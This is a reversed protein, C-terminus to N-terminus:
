GCNVNWGPSEGVGSARFRKGFRSEWEIESQEVPTLLCSETLFTTCHTDEDGAAGSEQAGM